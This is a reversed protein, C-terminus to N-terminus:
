GRFRVNGPSREIDALHWYGVHGPLKLVASAGSLNLLKQRSQDRTRAVRGGGAPARDCPLGHASAM